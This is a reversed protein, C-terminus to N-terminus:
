KNHERKSAASTFCKSEVGFYLLMGRQLRAMLQPTMGNPPGGVFICNGTFHNLPTMIIM